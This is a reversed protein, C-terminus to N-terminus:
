KYKETYTTLLYAAIADAENPKLGQNPMAPFEPDVKVPNLVYKALAEANGEYKSLVNVYAPGVLKQEFQHCAACRGNFIEEANIEAAGGAIQEKLKIQYDEYNRALKIFQLKTSTDFALQDKIVVAAVFVIFLVLVIISYAVKSDKLMKYYLSVLLIIVFMVLISLLFTGENMAYSPTLAVNVALMLPLILLYIIGNKLSFERVIRLYNEDDNTHERDAKFYYYLTFATTLALAFLIFFLFYIISSISLVISLISSADGWQAPDSAYKISGLLIYISILLSVLGYLGSNKFVKEAKEKYDLVDTRLKEDEIKSNEAAKLIDKIKASRKYSYIFVSGLVYFFLSIMLYGTINASSLHLLQAYCFIISLFPVIGFGFVIIRNFTVSDILELAFKKYGKEGTNQYKKHNLLSFLSSGFLLSLYPFLIIYTLVLLYKLLIMHHASQPLVFKDLFDM